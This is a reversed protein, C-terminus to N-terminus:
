RVINRRWLREQDSKGTVHGAITLALTDIFGINAYLVGWRTVVVQVFFGLMFEIPLKELGDHIFM